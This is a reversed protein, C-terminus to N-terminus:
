GIQVEEFRAKFISKPGIRFNLNLDEQIDRSNKNTIRYTALCEGKKFYSDPRSRLIVGCPDPFVCSNTKSHNQFKVLTNRLGQLNLNLFGDSNAYVKYAHERDLNNAIEEFASFSAGQATLNKAFIDALTKESPQEVRNINLTSKAMLFCQRNHEVLKNDAQGTFIKHLGVLAEKRGIYEQYPLNGDTLFCTAKLGLEKAVKCFEISNKKAAKWNTGFNGFDSV